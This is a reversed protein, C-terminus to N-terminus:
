RLPRTLPRCRFVGPSRVRRPGSPLACRAGEAVPPRQIVRSRTRCASLSHGTGEVTWDDSELRIGTALFGTGSLKLAKLMRVDSLTLDECEDAKLTWGRLCRLSSDGVHLFRFAEAECRDLVVGSSYTVRIIDDVAVDRLLLGPFGHLWLQSGLSLSEFSVAPTVDVFESRLAVNRETKGGPAYIPYECPGDKVYWDPYNEGMPSIGQFGSIKTNRMGAGLIRSGAPITPTRDLQLLGQPLMAVRYALLNAELAQRNQEKMADSVDGMVYDLM